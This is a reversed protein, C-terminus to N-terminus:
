NSSEHNQFSLLWLAFLIRIQDQNFKLLQAIHEWSSAKNLDLSAALKKNFIPKETKFSFWGGNLQVEWKTKSLSDCQQLYFSKIDLYLLYVQMCLRDHLFFYFFRM